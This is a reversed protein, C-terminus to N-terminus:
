SQGSAAAQEGPVDEFGDNDIPETVPVESGPMNIRKLFSELLSKNLHDTMTLDEKYNESPLPDPNPGNEIAAVAADDAYEQDEPAGDQAADEIVEGVPPDGGEDAAM